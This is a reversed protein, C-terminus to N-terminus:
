EIVIREEASVFLVDELTPHRQLLAIGKEELRGPTFGLIVLDASGSRRAVLQNFDSREDTGIVQLNKPSIALRGSTIMGYLQERQRRVDERPFAAFISIGGKQWTPHGLLIYALLIMLNANHQDHWTLWVHITRRKRFFEGGHRLVLSSMRAAGAMRIADQVEQLIEPPDEHMFEALLCNSEAGGAGPFQLAQALASRMSPSVMTDVYVASGRAGVTQVLRAQIRRSEEFTAADLQGRHYHLYTGIGYRYCLWALLQQPATREFTRGNVMIISPRWEDTRPRLSLAQLKTQFYRSTQVMVGTFIAALDDEGRQV